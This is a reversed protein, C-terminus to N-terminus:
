EQAEALAVRFGFWPRKAYADCYGRCASRLDGEEVKVGYSGGRIVKNDSDTPGIWDIADSLPYEDPGDLCWEWVNGYMDYFGWGNGQKQGVPHTRDMSNAAYWAFCGIQSDAEGFFYKTATGARCAYEWEVQTPLRFRWNGPLEIAIVTGLQECFACADFWNVNEVPLDYFEEQDQFGSPNSGIITIWQAQTVPYKSLWFGRSITARFQRESVSRGCETAPSGMLFTGPAVWNFSM